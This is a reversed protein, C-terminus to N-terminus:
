KNNRALWKRHSDDRDVVSLAQLTGESVMGLAFISYATGRKIRVDHVDLVVTDTGALRVQLDYTGPRLPIYGQKEKFNVNGFVITGDRLTIDVAPADPSLHVFRVLGKHLPLGFRRDEIVIPEIEALNGAAIITYDKVRNFRLEASIVVPGQEGAPLVQINYSTRPSLKLYDTVGTFPANEVALKDNVRVDVAPADPSAHIVRVNPWLRNDQKAQAATSLAAVLVMVFVIGIIKQYM